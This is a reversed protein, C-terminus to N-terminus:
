KPEDEQLILIDDLSLAKQEKSTIAETMKSSRKTTTSSSSSNIPHFVAKKFAQYSLQTSSVGLFSKIIKQAPFNCFMTQRDRKSIILLGEHMGDLLKVNEINISALKLHLKSIYFIVAAVLCTVVVYLAALFANSVIFGVRVKNLLIPLGVIYLLVQITLHFILQIHSGTYM